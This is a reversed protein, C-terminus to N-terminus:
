KLRKHIINYLSTSFIFLFSICDWEDSNNVQPTAPRQILFTPFGDLLCEYSDTEDLLWLPLFVFKGRSPLTLSRCGPSLKVGISFISDLLSEKGSRKFARTMAWTHVLCSGDYEIDVLAAEGYLLIIYTVHGQPEGRHVPM